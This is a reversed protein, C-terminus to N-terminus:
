QINRFWTPHQRGLRHGPPAKPAGSHTCVPCQRSLNISVRDRASASQTSSCLYLLSYGSLDTYSPIVVTTWWVRASLCLVVALM